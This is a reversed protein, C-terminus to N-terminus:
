AARDPIQAWFWREALAYPQGSYIGAGDKGCYAYRSKCGAIFPIRRGWPDSSNKKVAGPIGGAPLAQASQPPLTFSARGKSIYEVAIDCALGWYLLEQEERKKWVHGFLCHLISHLYCRNVQVNGVKYSEILFEPNYCFAAGDTATAGLSMSPELVLSHLAVDLFRLNLYLENRCDKLIENCIDVKELLAEEFM